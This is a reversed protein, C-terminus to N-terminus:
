LGKRVNFVEKGNGTNGSLLLHEPISPPDGPVVQMDTGRLAYAIGCKGRPIQLHVLKYSVPWSALFVRAM